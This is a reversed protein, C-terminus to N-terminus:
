KLLYGLTLLRILITNVTNYDFQSLVDDNTILEYFNM